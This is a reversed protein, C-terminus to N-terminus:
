LPQWFLILSKMSIRFPLIKLLFINEMQSSGLYISHHSGKYFHDSYESKAIKSFIVDNVTIDDNKGNYYIHYERWRYYDPSPQSNEHIEAGFVNCHSLETFNSKVEILRDLSITVKSYLIKGTSYTM